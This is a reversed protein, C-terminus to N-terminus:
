FENTSYPVRSKRTAYQRALISSALSESKSSLESHLTLAIFARQLTYSQLGVNSLTSDFCSLTFTVHTKVIRCAIAEFQFTM